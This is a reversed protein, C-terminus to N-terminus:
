VKNNSHCKCLTWLDKFTGHLTHAKRYACGPDTGDLDLNWVNGMAQFAEGVGEGATDM